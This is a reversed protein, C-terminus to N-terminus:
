SGELYSRSLAPLPAQPSIVGSRQMLAAIKALSHTLPGDAALLRQQDSPGPYNLGRESAEFQRPDLQQRQAMRSIAEAPFRRSYDRAAWWTKVLARLERGHSRAYAPDVALVDVVEGPISRSSFLVRYDSDELLGIDHPAYTVIADLEGKRLRAVLAAPGDFRLQLAQKLAPPRDGFSRLLVYEGLVTRELGVRRGLLDAPTRYTARAILRDAGLSEDLVLFLQPCRAPMEQCVAVAEPVTTAMVPVDGREFARRVDVLSTFQQVVVELDFARGLNKEQALYLYEYAPWSTIAVALQPRQRNLEWLTTLAAAVLAAVLALPWLRRVSSFVPRPVAM